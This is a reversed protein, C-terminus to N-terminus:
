GQPLGASRPPSSTSPLRSVLSASPSPIATPTSRSMATCISSAIRCPRPEYVPPLVLEPLSRLHPKEILYAAEASMGLAQKPKHNAVDGCGPSRKVFQPRRLGGFDSAALFNNEAMLLTDIRGKRDPTASRTPASDSDLLAPLPWCRGPRHRCRRRRRGPSCSAQYQRHHLGPSSAM